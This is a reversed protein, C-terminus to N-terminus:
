PGRETRRAHGKRKELRSADFAKCKRTHAPHRQYRALLRLCNGAPGRVLPTKASIGIIREMSLLPEGGYFTVMIEEKGVSSRKVFDVFQDAIEDSLYFKGKREGEFCYKCGLNCDLNLVIIYNLTKDLANVEQIFSLIERKEESADKVLCGQETLTEKEEDTLSNKKIDEILDCPVLLASANKASYLIVSEPEDQSPYIKTYKSLPM